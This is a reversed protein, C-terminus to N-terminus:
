ADRASDRRAEIEDLVAEPAVNRELEGVEPDPRIDLREAVRSVLEVLKTIEHESLLGIQLDLEARKEAAAAMRNQSILVFTSLFIAEVSAAMALVVLSPDFRPVGPVGVTNSVIWLGFIAAHLYVFTMSGAFATIRDAVRDQLPARREEEARRAELARINRSLTSSLGPPEPRHATPTKMTPSAHLLSVVRGDTADTGATRGIRQESNRQVWKM